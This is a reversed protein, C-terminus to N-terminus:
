AVDRADCVYLFIFAQAQRRGQAKVKVSQILFLKTLGPITTYVKLGLV